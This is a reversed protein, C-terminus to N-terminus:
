MMRYIICKEIFITTTQILIKFRELYLSILNSNHNSSTTWGEVFCYFNLVHMLQRIYEMLCIASFLCVLHFYTLRWASSITFNLNDGISKNERYNSWKKKKWSRMDWDLSYNERIDLVAICSLNLRSRLM